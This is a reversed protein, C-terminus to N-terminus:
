ARCWRPNRRKLWGGVALAAVLLPVVLLLALYQSSAWRIM